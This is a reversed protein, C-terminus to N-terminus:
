NDYIGGVRASPVSRKPGSIVAVDRITGISKDMFGPAGVQRQISPKLKMDRDYNTVFGINAGSVGPVSLFTENLTILGGSVVLGDGLSAMMDNSKAMKKVVVGGALIAAGPAWLPLSTFATKLAQNAFMGALGGAVLAAAETAVKMLGSAAGVRHRRRHTGKKKTRKRHYM